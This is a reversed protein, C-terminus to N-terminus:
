GDDITDDVYFSRGLGQHANRAYKNDIETMQMESPFRIYKTVHESVKGDPSIKWNGGQFDSFLVCDAGEYTDTNCFDLFTLIIFVSFQYFLCFIVM